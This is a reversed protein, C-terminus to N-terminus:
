QCARELFPGHLYALMVLGQTDTSCRVRVSNLSQSTVQVVGGVLAGHPADPWAMREASPGEAEVCACGLPSGGDWAWLTRLADAQSMVRADRAFAALGRANAVEYVFVPRGAALCACYFAGTTGATAVVEREPDVAVGYLAEVKGAIASCLEATGDHRTYSNLGDEIDASGCPAGARPHRHRVGGALPQDRGGERMRDVHHPDGVEDRVRIAPEPLSAGLGLSQRAVSHELVHVVGSLALGYM